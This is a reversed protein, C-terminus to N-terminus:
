QLQWAPEFAGASYSVLDNLMISAVPDDAFKELLDFTSIILRGKGYRVQFLTGNVESGYWNGDADLSHSRIMNGFAGALLDSERKSDIGGVVYRPWVSEFGWGM